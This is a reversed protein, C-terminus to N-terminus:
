VLNSTCAVPGPLDGSVLWVPQWAAVLKLYTEIKKFHVGPPPGGIVLLICPHPNSQFQFQFAQQKLEMTTILCIHHNLCNICWTYKVVVYYSHYQHILLKWLLPHMNLISEWACMLKVIVVIPNLVQPSSSRSSTNMPYQTVVVEWWGHLPTPTTLKKAQVQLVRRGCDHDYGQWTGPAAQANPM